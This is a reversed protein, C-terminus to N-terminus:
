NGHRLWAKPDPEALVCWELWVADRNTTVSYFRGVLRQAKGRLMNRASASKSTRYATALSLLQADRKAPSENIVRDSM